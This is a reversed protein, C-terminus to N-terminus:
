RAGAPPAQRTTDSGVGPQGASPAGPTSPTPSPNIASSSSPTSSASPPVTPSTGAPAPSTSTGGNSAGPGSQAHVTGAIVVCAAIAILTKSVM